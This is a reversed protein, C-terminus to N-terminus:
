QISLERGHVDFGMIRWYGESGTMFRTNVYKKIEDVEKPQTECDIAVSAMDPGKYVYKYLYKCSKISSGIEM